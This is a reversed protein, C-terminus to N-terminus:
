EDERTHALTPFPRREALSEAVSRNRVEDPVEVTRCCGSPLYVVRAAPRSELELRKARRNEFWEVGAPGTLVVGFFTIVLSCIVLPM